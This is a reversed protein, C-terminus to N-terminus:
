HQDQETEKHQQYLITGTLLLSLHQHLFVDGLDLYTQASVHMPGSMHQCMCPILDACVKCAITACAAWASGASLRLQTRSGILTPNRSLLGTLGSSLV